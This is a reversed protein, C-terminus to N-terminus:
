LTQLNDREGGILRWKLLFRILGCFFYWSTVSRDIKGTKHCSDCDEPVWCLEKRNLWQDAELPRTKMAARIGEMWTKRPRGRKRREGPIWEMILKPIREEQMRKVHGYWQLRKREIIDIIDPKKESGNNGKYTVHSISTATKGWDEKRSLWAHASLARLRDSCQTNGEVTEQVTGEKFM